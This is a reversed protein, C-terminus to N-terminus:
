RCLILSGLAGVEKAVVLGPSCLLSDVSSRLPAPTWTVLSKRIDKLTTDVRAEGQVYKESPDRSRSSLDTVVHSIGRVEDVREWSLSVIKGKSLM